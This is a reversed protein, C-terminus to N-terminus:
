KLFVKVAGLDRINRLAIGSVSGSSLGQVIGTNIITKTRSGTGPNQPVLGPTDSLASFVKVSVQGM